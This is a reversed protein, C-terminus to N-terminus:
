ESGRARGRAEIPWSRELHGGRVGYVHDHLHVAVCVHNPVV